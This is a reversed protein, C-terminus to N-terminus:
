VEKEFVIEHLYIRTYDTISIKIWGYRYVGGENKRFLIFQVEPNSKLGEEIKFEWRYEFETLM